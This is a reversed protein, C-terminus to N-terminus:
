YRTALNSIDWRNGFNESKGYWRFYWPFKASFFDFGPLDHEIGGGIEACRGGHSEPAAWAATGCWFKRAAVM